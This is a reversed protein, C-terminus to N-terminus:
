IEIQRFIAKKLCTNCASGSSESCLTSTKKDIGTTAKLQPNAKFTAEVPAPGNYDGQSENGSADKIIVTPAVTPNDDAWVYVNGILQLFLLVLIKIKM